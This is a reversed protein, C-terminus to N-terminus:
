DSYTSFVLCHTNIKILQPHCLRCFRSKDNTIISIFSVTKRHKSILIFLFFVKPKNKKSLQTFYDLSYNSNTKTRSVKSLVLSISISEVNVLLIPLLSFIGVQPQIIKTITASIPPSTPPNKMELFYM